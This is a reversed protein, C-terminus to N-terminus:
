AVRGGRVGKLISRVPVPGASPALPPHSRLSSGDVQQLPAGVEACVRLITSRYLPGSEFQVPNRELYITELRPLLKLGQVVSDLDHVQPM